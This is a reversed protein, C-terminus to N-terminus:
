VMGMWLKLIKLLKLQVFLRYNQDGFQEAYLDSLDRKNQSKSQKTAVKRRKVSTQWIVQVGYEKM